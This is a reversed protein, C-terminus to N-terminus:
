PRAKEEEVSTSSTRQKRNTGAAAWAYQSRRHLEGALHADLDNRWRELGLQEHGESVPSMSGSSRSHQRGRRLSPGSHDLDKHGVYTLYHVLGASQGQGIALELDECEDGEAKRLLLHGNAEADAESGGTVVHGIHILAEAEM